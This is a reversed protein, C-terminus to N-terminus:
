KIELKPSTIQQVGTLSILVKSLLKIRIQRNHHQFIKQNIVPAGMTSIFTGKNGYGILPAGAKNFQVNAM